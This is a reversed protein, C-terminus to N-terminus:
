GHEIATARCNYNHQSKETIAIPFKYNCNNTKDNIKQASYASASPIWSYVSALKKNKTHTGRIIGHHICKTDFRGWPCSYFDATYLSKYIIPGTQRNTRQFPSKKEPNTSPSASRIYGRSLVCLVCLCCSTTKRFKRSNAVRPRATISVHQREGKCNRNSTSICVTHCM